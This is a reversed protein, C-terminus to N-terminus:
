LLLLTPSQHTSFVVPTGGQDPRCVTRAVAALDSALPLVICALISHSRQNLQAAQLRM